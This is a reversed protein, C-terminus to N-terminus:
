TLKMRGSSGRARWKTSPPPPLSACCLFSPDRLPNKGHGTYGGCVWLGEHQGPVAGVWPCGDRSYGMIGTWEAEVHLHHRAIGEAVRTPGGVGGGSDELADEFEWGERVTEGLELDLVRGLLGRLYARAGADCVSDDSCGVGRRVAVRRGGGVMFQAGAERPRQVLYDDMEVGVFSYDHELQKGLINPNTNPPPTLAAM